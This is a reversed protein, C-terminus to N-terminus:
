PDDITGGHLQYLDIHDTKLRHLSKDVAKLIYEKHPNWEWSKGDAKWENGVKTALIIKHRFEKIANGVLIENEGKDYLDATDFFNIGHEIAKQIVEGASENGPKLSMGGLGIRSIELTSKGLKRYQM